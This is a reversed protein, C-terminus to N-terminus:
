HKKGLSEIINHKLIQFQYLTYNYVIVTYNSSMITTHLMIM